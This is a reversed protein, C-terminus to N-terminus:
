HTKPSSGSCSCAGPSVAVVIGNDHVLAPQTMDAIHARYRDGVRSDADCRTMARTATVPRQDGPM